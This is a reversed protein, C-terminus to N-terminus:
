PPGIFTLLAQKAADNQLLAAGRAATGQIVATTKPDSATNGMSIVATAAATDLGGALLLKPEVVRPIETTPDLGDTAPVTSIVAVGALDTGAAAKLAAAGGADAGVIYVLPWDLSKLYRVAVELDGPWKTEDRTGGTEGYGRADFTVAAIGRAQLEKAFPQWSRQDEAAGHALIVVKRKPGQNAYLHGRLTQGDATSQFSFTEGSDSTPPPTSTPGPTSASGGGPPTSKISASDALTPTFTPVASSGGGCATSLLLALLSFSLVITKM